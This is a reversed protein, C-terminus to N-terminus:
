VAALGRGAPNLEVNMHTAVAEVWKVVMEVEEHHASEAASQDAARQDNGYDLASFKSHRAFTPGTVIADIASEDLGLEFLRGIRLLTDAPRSLFDASDILMVRDGMREAVERFHHLQMVWALGLAQLDTLIFTEDNSYGFDLSTWRVASQFLTRGWI